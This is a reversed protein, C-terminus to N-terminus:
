FHFPKPIREAIEPIVVRHVERLLKNLEQAELGKFIRGEKPELEILEVYLDEPLLKTCKRKTKGKISKEFM